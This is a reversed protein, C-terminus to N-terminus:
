PNSEKAKNWVGVRLMREGAQDIVDSAYPGNRMYFAMMHGADELRKVRAKLATNEQELKTTSDMLEVAAADVREADKRLSIFHDAVRCLELATAKLWDEATVETKTPENM